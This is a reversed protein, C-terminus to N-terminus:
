QYTVRSTGIHCSENQTACSRAAHCSERTEVRSIKEVAKLFIDLMRCLTVSCCVAVYPLELQLIVVRQLTRWRALSSAEREERMCM